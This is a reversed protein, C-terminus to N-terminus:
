LKNGFNRAEAVKDLNMRVDSGPSSSTIIFFRLADASYDAIVDLPNDGPRYDSKSMKSGDAHRMM